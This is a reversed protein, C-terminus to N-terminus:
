SQELAPTSLDPLLLGKRAALIGSGNISDELGVADKGGAEATYVSNLRRYVWSLQRNILTPITMAKPLGTIM